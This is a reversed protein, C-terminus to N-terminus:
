KLAKSFDSVEKKLIELAKKFIENPNIQGFSEITFVLEDNEKVEYEEKDKKCLGECFDLISKEQNDKVTIKDGKEKIENEPFTKSIKDKYKKPLTIECLNRYVLFGPSFKAHETGKGVRTFADIKIEQGERLLTLPIKNYVVELEGKIDESYVYGQRKVDIKLKVEDEEKMDKPMKIPVLGIRHALSEDYLPSDNKAIEVKDIAVVPILNISRRIANALSESMKASFVIKNDHKKIINMKIKLGEEEEEERRKLVVM